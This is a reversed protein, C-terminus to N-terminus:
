ELVTAPVKSEENQIGQLSKSWIEDPLPESESAWGVVGVPAPLREWTGTRTDGILAWCSLAASLVLLIDSITIPVPLWQTRQCKGIGMGSHVRVWLGCTKGCLIHGQVDLVSLLQSLYAKFMTQVSDWEIRSRKSHEQVRKLPPPYLLGYGYGYGLKGM